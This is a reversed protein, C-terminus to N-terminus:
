DPSLVLLQAGVAEIAARVAPARHSALNNMVVVNSPLIVVCTVYTTFADCNTPEDLVWLTIMGPRSLGTVFTTTRTGMRCVPGCYNAAHHETM